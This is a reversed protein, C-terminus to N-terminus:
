RLTLQAAEALTLRQPVLAIETRRVDQDRTLTKLLLIKGQMHVVIRDSKWHEADVPTRELQFAGGQEIRGLFGFGFVVPQGITADLKCLRDMPERLSVTGVMAHAVREEYSSPKFAPNPRFTFRDCGDQQGAPTLLFAKPLLSLLQAAHTEDGRHAQNEARFAAPDRVLGAIRDAEAKAEAATLGRGDIGVLRHLPGDDTEVVKERWLHGGTRTSREEALYKYHVDQGRAGFEISAMKGVLTPDQAWATASVLGGGLIALRLWLGPCM